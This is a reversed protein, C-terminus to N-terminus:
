ARLRPRSWGARRALSRRAAAAAASPSWCRAPAARRPPRRAAPPSVVQLLDEAPGAERRARWVDGRVSPGRCRFGGACPTPPVADHLSHPSRRELPRAPCGWHLKRALTTIVHCHKKDALFRGDEDRVS